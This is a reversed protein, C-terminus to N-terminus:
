DIIHIITVALVLNIVFFMESKSNKIEAPDKWIEKNCFACFM